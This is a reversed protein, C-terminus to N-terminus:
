APDYPEINGWRQPHDLRYPRNVSVRDRDVPPPNEPARLPRGALVQRWAFETRVYDIGDGRLNPVAVTGARRGGAYDILGLASEWDLTRVAFPIDQNAVAACFVFEQVNNRPAFNQRAWEEAAECWHGVYYRRDPKEARGTCHCYTFAVRFPTVIRQADAIARKHATVDAPKNSKPPAVDLMQMQEDNLPVIRPMSARVIKLLAVLEDDRIPCLSAWAGSAPLIEVPAEREGCYLTVM